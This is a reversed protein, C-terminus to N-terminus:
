EQLWDHLSHAILSFSKGSKNLQIQGIMQSARHFLWGLGTLFGISPLSPLHELSEYIVSKGRFLYYFLDDALILKLLHLAVTMSIILIVTLSFLIKKKM